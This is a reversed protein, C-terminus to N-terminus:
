KKCKDSRCDQKCDKKCDNPRCNSPNGCFDGKRGHKGHRMDRGPRKSKKDFKGKREGKFKEMNTQYQKYQEPTLIEKIQKDRERMIKDRDKSIKDRQKDRERMIKDRDKSIKDRQKDRERMMKDRDKSIKDRQKDREKLAKEDLKRLREKQEATLTIGEFIRMDCPTNGCVEKIGERVPVQAPTVKVGKAEILPRTTTTTQAFTASTGIGIAIIAIAFIKKIMKFFPKTPKFDFHLMRRAGVQKVM